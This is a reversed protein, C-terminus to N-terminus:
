SVPLGFTILLVYSALLVAGEWRKLEDTTAAM